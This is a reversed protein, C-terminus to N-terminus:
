PQISVNAGNLACLAPALEKQKPNLASREIVLGLGPMSAFHNGSELMGGAGFMLPPEVVDHTLLHTGFAGEQAIVIDRAARAVTLAARTLVSTEGVHAGIILKFGRRRAEDVLALSRVVGGMKSVRLNIIWHAADEAFAELQDLAALSEDLIIHTDLAHAIRHMGAHDGARLPEEIAHFRFGSADLARIAENADAWLNNADARVNNTTLGAERLLRAKERERTADASLKMKFDRFGAKLYRELQAAFVQPAADGLVATYQFRGSLPPVDLLEELPKGQAKGMADLLALEVACWAAPNRDILKQNGAVWQVLTAIDCISKRWEGRHAEIFAQASVVSEGTVYARPCGEGHGTVGDSSRVEVWVAQTGARAASAHSFAAKFPIELERVTLSEIKM